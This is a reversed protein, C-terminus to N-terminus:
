RPNSYSCTAFSDDTRLCALASHLRKQYYIKEILHPVSVRAEALDRYENRLLEEYKV